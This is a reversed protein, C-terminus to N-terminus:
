RRFFRAGGAAVYYEAPMDSIFESRNTSSSVLM